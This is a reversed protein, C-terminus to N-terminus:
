DVQATSAVAAYGLEEPTFSKDGIQYVEFTHGAQRYLVDPNFDADTVIRSIKTGAFAGFGMTLNKSTSIDIETLFPCSAFANKHIYVVNIESPLVFGTSMNATAYKVLEWGDRDPNYLYLGNGIVKLTDSEGRIEFGSVLTTKDTLPEMASTVTGPLSISVPNTIGTLTYAGLTTVTDDFVAKTIFPAAEVYPGPEGDELYLSCDGELASFSLTDHGDYAVRINSHHELNKIESETYFPDTGTIDSELLPSTIRGQNGYWRQAAPAGAYDVTQAQMTDGPGNDVVAAPKKECGSLLLVLLLLLGGTLSFMTFKRM